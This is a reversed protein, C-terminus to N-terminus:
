QLAAIVQMPDDAALIRERRQANGLKGAVAALLQLHETRAQERAAIGIAIRVPQGDRAEWAVGHPILALAVRCCDLHTVRAHPVAIGGGIATTTVLERDFLASLFSTREHDAWDDALRAALLTLVERRTTPAVLIAVRHPALHAALDFAAPNM